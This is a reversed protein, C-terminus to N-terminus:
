EIVLKGKMGRLLHEHVTCFFEFTGQKNATFRITDTNGKQIRKSEINFANIKMDHFGDKNILIIRVKEGKNIKLENPVFRYNDGEIQFERIDEVIKGSSTISPQEPFAEYFKDINVITTGLLILGVIIGGLILHWEKM